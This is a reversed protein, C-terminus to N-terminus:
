TDQTRANQKREYDKEKEDVYHTCEECPAHGCEKAEVYMSGEYHQPRSPCRGKGPWYNRYCQCCTTM